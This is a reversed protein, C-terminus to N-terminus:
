TCANLLRILRHPWSTFSRGGGSYGLFMYHESPLTTRFTQKFTGPSSRCLLSQKRGETTTLKLVSIPLMVICGCMIFDALVYVSWRTHLTCVANYHHSQQRQALHQQLGFNVSAKSASMARTHLHVQGEVAKPDFADTKHAPGPGAEEKSPSFM